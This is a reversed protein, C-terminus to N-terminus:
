QIIPQQSYRRMNVALSTRRHNWTLCFPAFLAVNQVSWTMNTLLEIAVLPLSSYRLRVSTICTSRSRQLPQNHCTNIHIRHSDILTIYRHLFAIVNVQLRPRILALRQLYRTLANALLCGLLIFALFLHRVAILCTTSLQLHLLFTNYQRQGNNRSHTPTNHIFFLSSLEAFPHTRPLHTLKNHTHLLPLITTCLLTLVLFTHSHTTHIFVLSSSAAWYKYGSRGVKQDKRPL